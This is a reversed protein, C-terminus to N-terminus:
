RGLYLGVGHGGDIGFRGLALDWLVDLAPDSEFVDVETVRSARSDTNEAVEVEGNLRAGVNCQNAGTAATLTSRDLEDFTEVVRQM